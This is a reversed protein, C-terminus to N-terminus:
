NRKKNSTEAKNDFHLTIIFYPSVTKNLDICSQAYTTQTRSHHAVVAPKGTAIIRPETGRRVATDFFSNDTIGHM